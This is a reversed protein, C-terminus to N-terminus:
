LSGIGEAEWISGLRVCFQIERDKPGPRLPLRPNIHSGVTDQMAVRGCKEQVTEWESYYLQEQTQQSGNSLFRRASMAVKDERLM